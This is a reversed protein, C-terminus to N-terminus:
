MKYQEYHKIQKKLSHDHDLYFATILLCYNERPELIVIYREEELLIHVRIRSKYPEKWVKIGYCDPCEEPNCNYNEIFARIWRIRECRRIDPIRNKNKFYDECTVHYFADEKGNEIPYKKVSVRQGEFYPHSNVFDQKFIDYIAKEYDSWNGGYDQLLEQEPIWCSENM